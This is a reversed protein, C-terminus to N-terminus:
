SAMRMMCFIIQVSGFAIEAQRMLFVLVGSFLRPPRNPRRNPRGFSKVPSQGLDTRTRVFKSRAINFFFIETGSGSGGVGERTLAYIVGAGLLLEELHPGSKSHPLLSYLRTMYKSISMDFGDPLWESTVLSIVM